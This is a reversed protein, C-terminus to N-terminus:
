GSLWGGFDPQLTGAPGQLRDSSRDRLQHEDGPLSTPGRGRSWPSALVPDDQERCGAAPDGDPSHLRPRRTRHDRSCFTLDPVDVGRWTSNAPEPQHHGATLASTLDPIRLTTATSFAPLNLATASPSRPPLRCVVNTPIKINSARDISATSTVFAACALLLGPDRDVWPEILRPDVRVVVAARVAEVERRGVGTDGETRQVPPVPATRRRDRGAPGPAAAFAARFTEVAVRPAQPQDGVVEACARKGAVPEVLAEDRDM